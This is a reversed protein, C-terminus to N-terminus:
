EDQWLGDHWVRGQEIMSNLNDKLQQKAEVFEAAMQTISERHDTQSELKLLRSEVAEAKGVLESLRLLKSKLPERGGGYKISPDLVDSLKESLQAWSHELETRVQVEVPIGHQRVIIHVARYGYSPTIRRDVVSTDAFSKTLCMVAEDQKLVDGVIARCGAIDQMQRLRLSERRLKDAISSTSKEPRGTPELKLSTRLVEVVAEYAPGFSRRFESLLELDADTISQSRLRDGLRDIQTSSIKL